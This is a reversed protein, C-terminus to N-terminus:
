KAISKDKCFGPIDTNRRAAIWKSAVEFSEDMLAARMVASAGGARHRGAICHVVVTEGCYLTQLLLPWLDKWAEADQLSVLFPVNWTRLFWSAGPLERCWVSSLWSSM